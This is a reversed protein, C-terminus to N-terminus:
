KDFNEPTLVLYSIKESDQITSMDFIDEIEVNQDLRKLIKIDILKIKEEDSYNWFNHVLEEIIVAIRAIENSINILKSYDIVSFRIYNGISSMKLEIIGSSLIILNTGKIKEINIGQFEMELEVLKIAILIEMNLKEPLEFDASISIKNGLPTDLIKIKQEKMGLIEM